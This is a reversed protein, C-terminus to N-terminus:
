LEDIGEGTKYGAKKKTEVFQARIRCIFKGVTKCFDPM